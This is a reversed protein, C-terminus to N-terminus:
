GEQFGTLDEAVRFASPEDTDDAGLAIALMEKDPDAIQVTETARSTGAIEADDLAVAVEYSGSGSWVDAYATFNSGDATESDTSILDFTGDLVTTGDPGVVEVSGGVRRGTENFVNVHELFQSGVLNLVSSCGAVATLAAAGGAALFRRRSRTTEYLAGNTMNPSRDNPLPPLFRPHVTEGGAVRARDASRHRGPSVGHRHQQHRFALVYSIRSLARGVPM